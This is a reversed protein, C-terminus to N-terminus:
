NRARQFVMNFPKRYTPWLSVGDTACNLLVSKLLQARESHNRTLYLFHARNALELIREVTLVDDATVEVKLRSLESELRREQERSENMKRAWFEDDIKGDLKDEYMRDMRTRLTSLQQQNAEVRKQRESEARARDSRLSAVMDHMFKDQSRSEKSIVRGEKVLHIEVGRREILAEFALADARNRYLRDTKEVLVIRCADDTELLRLMGTFEKRGPNKASEIDIFDRKTRSGRPVLM